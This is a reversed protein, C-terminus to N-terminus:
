DDGRMELYRLAMDVYSEFDNGQKPQAEQVVVVVPRRDRTHTTERERSTERIVERLNVAPTNELPSIDWSGIRDNRSNDPAPAPFDPLGPFEPFDPIDPAEVVPTIVAQPVWAPAAARDNGGSDPAPKPFDPFDPFDPIDPAEVVPTIVAQPVWVPAAARDNRSNDPAPAPFDPLGPFEPFDPIDPMEVVPTIVAQPVWVPAAAAQASVPVALSIGAIAAATAAKLYGSRSLIGGAFTEVLRQGSLTLTSLPGEKADSFPLLNRLKALGGKIIEAPRNILSQIGQIFTRILAAGSEFLNFSSIAALANNIANRVYEKIQDWHQWILLPIGLFPFIAALVLPGYTVVADIIGQFVGTFWERAAAFKAKIFDCGTGLAATVTDWNHWLAYIAVGLAVIALVIWTIPNALLAATFSWVSGILGPLARAGAFIASRAFSSIATGAIRVGPGLLRFGTRLFDFAGGSVGRLWSFGRAIKTLSDIVHGGMIVAGSGITLIPALVSLAAAGLAFILLATRTITPHAKTFGQFGQVMNRINPILDVLLPAIEEGISRKLIDFNQGALQLQAGLDNNMASAIEETYGTGRQMSQGLSDIGGRLDDVKPYLLNILAVAEDRGFAKQIDQSEMADLTDGYKGRLKDLIDATSLLNNNADVFSLGLKQGARGASQIFAKYKTGAESGSMTAMLQGLVGLQEEFPRQASTAEAGLATLAQAVSSGSAKFIQVASTIGASFMEGFDMDSMDSYMDKYIGYGTAFLDTMEAVSSKTAKGTLAAIKAYEGVAADSLSEIGGKIDYAASIFEAENTGAWKSCFETAATQLAGLDKIGVSSLEGLAGHVEKVPELVDGLSRTMKDAAGQVLAGSVAMRNGFDVAGQAKSAVSELNQVSQAMKQVPGTLKDVISVVVALNYLSEM